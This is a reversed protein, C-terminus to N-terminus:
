IKDLPEYTHKIYNHFELLLKAFEYKLQFRRQIITITIYGNEKEIQNFKELYDQINMLAEVYILPNPIAM